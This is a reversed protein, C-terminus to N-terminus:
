TKDKRIVERAKKVSIIGGNNEAEKLMKSLIRIKDKKPTKKNLFKRLQMSEIRENFKKPVQSAKSCWDPVAMQKDVVFM